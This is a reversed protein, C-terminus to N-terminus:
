HVQQQRKEGEVIGQSIVRLSLNAVVDHVFEPGLNCINVICVAISTRMESGINSKATYLQIFTKLIEASCFKSGGLESQSTINEITKIV